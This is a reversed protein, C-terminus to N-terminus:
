QKEKLIQNLFKLGKIFPKTEEWYEESFKKILKDSGTFDSSSIKQCITTLEKILESSYKRESLEKYLALLGSEIMRKKQADSTTVTGSFATEYGKNLTLAINHNEEPISSIDFTITSVQEQKVIKVPQKYFFDEDVKKEIEPIKEIKKPPILPSDQQQVEQKMPPLPGSMFTKEEQIISEELKPELKKPQFDRRPQFVGDDFASSQTKPKEFKELKELKEQKEQREPLKEVKEEEIIQIKKFPSKPEEGFPKEVAHYVRYRLHNFESQPDVNSKSSHVMNLYKLSINFLGQSALISAFSSYKEILENPLKQIQKKSQFIAIKEMLDLLSDNDESLHENLWISVVKDVNQSLIYCILASLHSKENELRQALIESLHTFKDKGFSCITALTEKWKDLNSDIVFSELKDAYLNNLINTVINKKSSLYRNKTQEWLKQGGYTSLLLADDFRLAMFCVDVCTEYDGIMLSKQIIEDAKENSITKTEKMEETITESKKLVQELDKSIQTKDFGLYKMLKERMNQEFTLQIVEWMQKEQNQSTSVKFDCFSKLDGTTIAKEFEICRKTFLEDTTLREIKVIPSGNLFYVM